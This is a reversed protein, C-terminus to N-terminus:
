AQAPPRVKRFASYLLADYAVELAAALLLPAGLAMGRMAAGAFGHGAAWAWVRVLHTAGSALVRKAPRVVAVFYSQRTPVDTEV